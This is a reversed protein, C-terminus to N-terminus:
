PRRKPRPNCRDLHDRRCQLRRPCRSHSRRKDHLLIPTKGVGLLHTPTERPIKCGTAWRYARELARGRRPDYDQPPPRARLQRKPHCTCNGRHHRTNRRHCCCGTHSCPKRPLPSRDRYGSPIANPSVCLSKRPQVLDVALVAAAATAVVTEVEVAVLSGPSAETAAAQVGVARAAAKEEGVGM